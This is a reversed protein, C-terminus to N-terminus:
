ISLLKVILTTVLVVVCVIAFFKLLSYDRHHGQFYIHDNHEIEITPIEPTNPPRGTIKDRLQKLGNVRIKSAHQTYSLEILDTPYIGSKMLMLIAMEGSEAKVTGAHQKHLSDLGQYEFVKM